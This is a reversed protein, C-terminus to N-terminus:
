KIGDTIWEKDNFKKRSLKVRPFYKELIDFLKQNFINYRENVETIAITNLCTNLIQYIM